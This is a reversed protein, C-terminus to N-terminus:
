HLIIPKACRDSLRCQSLIFSVRASDAVESPVDDADDASAFLILQKTSSHLKKFRDKKKEEKDLNHELQRTLLENQTKAEDSQRSISAALQQLVAKNTTPAMGPAFIPPPGPPLSPPTGLMVASTMVASTAQHICKSQREQQYNNLAADTLDLRYSTPPVKLM